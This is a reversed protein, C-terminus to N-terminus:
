LVAEARPLQQEGHAGRGQGDGQADAQAQKEEALLGLAAFLHQTKGDAKAVGAKHAQGQHLANHAALAHHVAGEENHHEIDEAPGVAVAHHAAALLHAQLHQQEVWADDAQQKAQGDVKQIQMQGRDDGLRHAEERIQVRGQSHHNDAAVHGLHIQM